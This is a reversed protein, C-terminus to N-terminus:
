RSCASTTRCPLPPRSRPSRARWRRDTWRTWRPAPWCALSWRGSIQTEDIQVPLEMMSTDAITLLSTGANVNSGNVADVGTIVGGVPARLVGKAVTQQAQELTARAGDVALQLSQLTSSDSVGGTSAQQSASSLAAQASALKNAASQVATQAAGLDNRSIGGVAYLRQQGALTSQVIKLADQADQVSLRASTVGSSRSAQSAAQSARQASLQAQAKQLALQADQVAQINSDNRLQGIVQGAKVVTGVAPLGSVTGSAPAPDPVSARPILTGPGSVLVSVTGPAAVDTPYSLGPAASGRQVLLVGAGAALLLLPLVILWRRSRRRVPKVARTPAARAPDTRASAPDPHVTAADPPSSPFDTM